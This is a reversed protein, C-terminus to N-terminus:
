VSRANRFCCKIVVTRTQWYVREVSKSDQTVTIRWCAKPRIFYSSYVQFLDANGVRREISKRQTLPLIKLCGRVVERWLAIPAFWCVPNENHPMFKKSTADHREILVWVWILVNTVEPSRTFMFSAKAINEWRTIDCDFYALISM